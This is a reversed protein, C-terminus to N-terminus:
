VHRDSRLADIIVPRAAALDSRVTGEPIGLVEGVQASTLDAAFYLAIVARPRSPLTRVAAWFAVTDPSPSAM